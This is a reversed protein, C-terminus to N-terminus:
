VMGVMRNTQQSTLSSDVSQLEALKNEMRLASNSTARMQEQMKAQAPPVQGETVRRMSSAQKLVTQSEINNKVAVNKQENTVKFENTLNNMTNFYDKDYYKNIELLSKRFEEPNDSKLLCGYYVFRDERPDIEKLSNVDSPLSNKINSPLKMNGIRCQKMSPNDLSREIYVEKANGKQIVDFVDVPIVCEDVLVDNGDYDVVANKRMKLLLEDLKMKPLTDKVNQPLRNYEEASMYEKPSVVMANNIQDQAQQYNINKKRMLSKILFDKCKYSNDSVDFSEKKARSPMLACAIIIIIFLAILYHKGFKLTLHKGLKVM